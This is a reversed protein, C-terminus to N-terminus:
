ERRRRLPGPDCRRDPRVLQPEREGAVDFRPDRGVYDLPDHAVFAGGGRQVEM